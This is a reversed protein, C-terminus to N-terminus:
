NERVDRVVRFGTSLGMYGITFVNHDYGRSAVRCKSPDDFPSSGRLVKYIYEESSPSATAPGQPNDSPSNQYYDEAYFDSCWEQFGGSMDYIGLENPQKTAVHYFNISNGNYVRVDEFTNSGSYIFNQSLIGGRAAFEWEAETPLRGGLWEAFAKAGLWTIFPIPHNELDDHVKFPFLDNNFWANGGNGYFCREGNVLGDLPCNIDNLYYIYQGMTVETAMIEFSNLSVLHVPMEDDEGNESGMLFAGGEVPIFILDNVYVWLYKEAQNGENDAATITFHYRGTDMTATYWQYSLSSSASSALVEGDVMLKISQMGAKDNAEIEFFLTDGKLTQKESFVKSDLNIIPEEKDKQCSILLIGILTILVIKIMTYNKIM